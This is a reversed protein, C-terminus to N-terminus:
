IFYKLFKYFLACMLILGIIVISFYGLNNGLQTNEQIVKIESILNNKFESDSSELIDNKSIELDQNNQILKILEQYDKDYEERTKFYKSLLSELEEITISSSVPIIEEEM